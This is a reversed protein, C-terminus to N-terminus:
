GFIKLVDLDELPFEQILSPLLTHLLAARQEKDIGQLLSGLHTQVLSQLFAMREEPALSTILTPLLENVLTLLTEPDSKSLYQRALKLHWSSM